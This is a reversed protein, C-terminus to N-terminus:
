TELLLFENFFLLSPKLGIFPKRNLLSGNGFPVVKKKVPLFNNPM